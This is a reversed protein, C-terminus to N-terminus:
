QVILKLSEKEFESVLTILYIGPQRIIDNYLYYQDNQLLTQKLIKGVMDSIVVNVDTVRELSLRLIFWGKVPNPFLEVKKFNSKGTQRIDIELISSCNNDDTVSLVYNGPEKILIEENNVLSGDPATWSYFYNVAPMGDSADLILSKGEVLKYTQSLKTEWVHTNSVLIKETFVKQDADTVLITYAGQSINEFIHDRKNELSSLQFSRNSIGKLIIRFPPVGGAIETQIAGSKISSCTPSILTSRAFFSPAALLTFLDTGSQDTDFKVSDFRIYGESSSIPMCQIYRTQRFPYKGTGSNDVMLWYIESEKLPDIESLSLENIELNILDSKSNYTSIKWERKLKRIESEDDFRLPEGNDGWILFSNNKLGSLIGIKMVGPTQTSESALQNLGSMDDRGIGAINRSFSANMEADWIVEGSSNLYSAPLEQNLSIGYKLALYSEVQQREKPSIFRNFLIVEPILGSYVLVPLQQGRPPRGFKLRRSVTDSNQSKNRTYSYIKPSLKMNANYSAYRYVDLAAMRQDTLVMEASNDNEVSLIVREALTDNAQCVTFLSFSALKGLNLTSNITNSGESFFLAPNNNISRNKGKILLGTEITSKFNLNSKWQAEGPKTGETIEWVSAGKVGGPLSNQSYISVFPIFLIIFIVQKM